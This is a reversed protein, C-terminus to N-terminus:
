PKILEVCAVSRAAAALDPEAPIPSPLTGHLWAQALWGVYECDACEIDSAAQWGDPGYRYFTETTVADAGFADLALSLTTRDFQQFFGFYRYVGFPVTLLLRGGPKLVRRFEPMVLRFDDLNQENDAYAYGYMRNDCGVHELTSLCVIVDYYSNRIPIDRLDHYIYSFGRQWFCAGEPALTLIHLKNRRFLQQDLIYGHNLASGADLLICGSLEALHTIVWPYEVCREDVGCGFGPPLQGGSRFLAILNPDTLSKSILQKKHVAYGVSWPIKGGKDFVDLAAADPDISKQPIFNRFVDLLLPPCLPKIFRRLRTEQNM